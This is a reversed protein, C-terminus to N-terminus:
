LVNNAAKEVYFAQVIISIAGAGKSVRTEPQRFSGTKSDAESM